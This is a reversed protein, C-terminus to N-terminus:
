HGRFYGSHQFSLRRENSQPETPKDGIILTEGESKWVPKKQVHGPQALCCTTSTRPAHAIGYLVNHSLSGRSLSIGVLAERVLCTQKVSRAVRTLRKAIRTLLGQLGLGCQWEALRLFNNERHAM